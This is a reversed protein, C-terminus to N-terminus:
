IIIKGNDTVEVNKKIKFTRLIRGVDTLCAPIGRLGTQTDSCSIGSTLRFFFSTIRNGFRSKWPVNGVSFDRTGLILCNEDSLLKEAVRKIDHPLHQGDADATVFGSIDTFSAISKEIAIKIAAGKGKNNSYREVICGQKEAESFICDYDSGSGDDVVIIKSFGIAVLQETLVILKKKPKLAPILVVIKNFDM